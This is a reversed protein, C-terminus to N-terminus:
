PEPNDAFDIYDFFDVTFLTILANVVAHFPKLRVM